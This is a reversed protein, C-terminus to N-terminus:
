NFMELVENDFFNLQEKELKELHEKAMKLQVQKMKYKEALKNQKEISMTSITIDILRSPNISIIVSGTQIRNLITQGDSSNLFMELYYPNIKKNDLRLVILNGNAIIKRDDIDNVVAIKIRTGKSSIILDNEKILYRDYKNENSNIKILDRSIQGNEIDSIMLIEYNGNEDQLTEQEKATMQYGRFVDIVFESLKKPNYYKIEKKGVYNNVSLLYNNKIINDYSEVSVYKSNDDNLIEFIRNMNVNFKGFKAKEVENSLDVFKVSNNNSSFIVLYQDLTTSNTVLPLKIVSEIWGNDILDKRYQIDSVKFLPGATMIAAGRGGNDLLTLMADIFLWEFSSSNIKGWNFRMENLRCLINDIEFGQYRINWPYNCLIKNYKKDFPIKFIDNNEIEFYESLCILRIKSILSLEESIEIGHLSKYECYSNVNVLYNGYSSGIDLVNDNKNIDLVYNIIKCIQDPTQFEIRGNDSLDLAMMNKFVIGNYSCFISLMWFINRISHQYKELDELVQEALEICYYINGFSIGSDNLSNSVIESQINKELSNRYINIFDALSVNKDSAADKFTSLSLLRLFCMEYIIEGCQNNGALINPKLFNILEWYVKIEVREKNEM